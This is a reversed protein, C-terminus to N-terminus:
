DCKSAKSIDFHCPARGVQWVKYSVQESIQRNIQSIRQDGKAAHENERAQQAILFIATIRQGEGSHVEDMGEGQGPYLRRSISEGAFRTRFPGLRGM